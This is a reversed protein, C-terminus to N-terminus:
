PLGNKIFGLSKQTSFNIIKVFLHPRYNVMLQLWVNCEYNFKNYHKNILFYFYFLNESLLLLIFRDIEWCIVLGHLSDCFAHHSSPWYYFCQTVTTSHHTPRNSCPKWRNGPLRLSHCHVNVDSIGTNNNNSVPPPYPTPYYYSYLM